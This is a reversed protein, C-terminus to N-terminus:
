LTGAPFAHRVEYVEETHGRNLTVVRSFDSHLTLHRGWTWSDDRGLAMSHLGLLVGRIHVQFRGTYNGFTPDPSQPGNHLSLKIATIERFGRDRWILNDAYMFCNRNSGGMDNGAFNASSGRWVAPGNNLYLTEAQTRVAFPIWESSGRLRVHAHVEAPHQENRTPLTTDDFVIGLRVIASSPSGLSVTPAIPRTSLFSRMETTYSGSLSPLDKVVREGDVLEGELRAYAVEWTDGNLPRELVGLRAYNFNTWGNYASKFIYIRVVNNMTAGWIAPIEYQRVTNGAIGRSLGFDFRLTQGSKLIVVAGAASDRRLDDGGTKVVLRLTRLRTDMGTGDYTVWGPTTWSPREASLSINNLTPYDFYSTRRDGYTIRFGKVDWTTTIDQGPRDGRVTFRANRVMRLNVERDLEFVAYGTTRSALGAPEPPNFEGSALVRDGRDGGMLEMRLILTHALGRDGTTFLVSIRNTTQGFGMAAILLAVLVTMWRMQNARM